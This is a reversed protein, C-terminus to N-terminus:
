ITVFSTKSITTLTTVWITALTTVRTTIFHLLVKFRPHSIGKLSLVITVEFFRVLFVTLFLV